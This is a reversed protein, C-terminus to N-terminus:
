KPNLQSETDLEGQYFRWHKMKFWKLDRKKEWVQVWREVNGGLCQKLHMVCAEYSKIKM